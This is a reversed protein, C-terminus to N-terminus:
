SVFLCAESAASMCDKLYVNLASLWPWRSVASQWLGKGIVLMIRQSGTVHRFVSPLQLQRHILMQQQKTVLNHRVRQSGM